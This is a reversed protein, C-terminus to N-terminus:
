EICFGMAKAKPGWGEIKGSQDPLVARVDNLKAIDRGVRDVVRSQGLQRNWTDVPHAVEPGIVAGLVIGLRWPM